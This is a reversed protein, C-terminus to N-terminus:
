VVVLVIWGECDCYVVMYDIFVKVKVFLLVCNVYVFKIEVFVDVFDVEELLQVFVGLVFEVQVFMKLVVGIGFDYMVMECNFVFSNLLIDFCFLVIFMDGDVWFLLVLCCLLLLILVFVYDVFDVLMEFCVYMQLYVFMVVIVVLICEVLWVVILESMLMYLVVIGIDYGEGVLDVLCEILMVDFCVNLYVCKFGVILLVFWNLVVMMYVVFCLLGEFECMYMQVEVELVDFEDFVVVCCEYICEVMEILLVQCIMWYLLWSGFCVELDVVVCLVVLWVFGYMDVVCMFSCMEVVLWFICLKDIYDM